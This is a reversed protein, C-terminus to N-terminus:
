RTTRRSRGTSRTAGTASRPSSSPPAGTRAATRRPSSTSGRPTRSPSRVAARMPSIRGRLYVSNGSAAISPRYAPWGLACYTGAAAGANYTSNVVQPTTWTTGGNYSEQVVLDDHVVQYPWYNPALSQSCYYYPCIYDSFMVYSVVLTGNSLSTLSPQWAESFNEAASCNTNGLYVPSGWTLGGNTSTQVAVDMTTNNSINAVGPCNTFDTTATFAVAIVGSSTVNISPDFTTNECTVTTTYYPKQCSLNGVTAQSLNSSQFFTGRGSAIPSSKPHPTLRVGSTSSSSSTVAGVASAGAKATAKAHASATTGISGNAVASASAGPLGWIVMASSVLILVVAVAGLVRRRSGGRGTPKAMTSELTGSGTGDINSM